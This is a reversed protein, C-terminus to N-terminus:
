WDEPRIEAVAEVVKLTELELMVSTRQTVIVTM